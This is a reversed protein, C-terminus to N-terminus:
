TRRLIWGVRQRRGLLELGDAHPHVLQQMAPVMRQVGQQQRRELQEQEQLLAEQAPNARLFAELQQELRAELQELWDAAASM